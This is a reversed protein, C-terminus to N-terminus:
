GIDHTITGGRQHEYARAFSFHDGPQRTRLHLFQVPTVGCPQGIALPANDLKHRSMDSRKERQSTVVVACAQPALLPACWLSM